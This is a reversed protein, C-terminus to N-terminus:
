HGFSVRALERNRGDYARLSAVDRFSGAFARMPGAQLLPMGQARGADDHTALWAVDRRALGMVATAHVVRAPVGPAAADHWTDPTTFIVLPKTMRCIAAGVHVGNVPLVCGAAGHRTAAVLAFPRGDPTGAASVVQVSTADFGRRAIATTVTDWQAPTFAGWSAQPTSCCSPRGARAFGAGVAVAAVLGLM